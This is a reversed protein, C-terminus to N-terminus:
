EENKEGHYARMREAAAIKQEDTLTRNSFPNKGFRFIWLPCDTAPCLQVETRQGCCCDLCKQRIAKIPSIKNTEDGSYKEKLKRFEEADTTKRTSAEYEENEINNLNKKNM